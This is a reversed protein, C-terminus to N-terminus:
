FPASCRTVAGKLLAAGSDYIRDAPGFPRGEGKEHNRVLRVLDGDRFAAM